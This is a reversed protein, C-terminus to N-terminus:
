PLAFAANAAVPQEGPQPGPVYPIPKAIVKGDTLPPASPALREMTVITRAKECRARVAESTDYEAVATAKWYKDTDTLARCERALEMSSIACREAQGASDTELLQRALARYARCSALSSCIALYRRLRDM